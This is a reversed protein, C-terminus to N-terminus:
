YLLRNLNHCRTANHDIWTQLTQFTAIDKHLRLKLWIERAKGGAEKSSILYTLSWRCIRSKTTVHLNLYILKWERWYPRRIIESKMTARQLNVIFKELLSIDWNWTIKPCSEKGRFILGNWTLRECFDVFQWM